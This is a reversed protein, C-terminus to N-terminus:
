RGHRRPSSAHLVLALQEKGVGTEGLLLVPVDGRVLAGMEAYLNLIAASHGPLYGDPFVLPSGGQAQQGGPRPLARPSTLDHEPGPEVWRAPVMRLSAARGITLPM